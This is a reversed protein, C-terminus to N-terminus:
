SIGYSEDDPSQDLRSDIFVTATDATHPVRLEFNVIEDEWVGGCINERILGWQKKIEVVYQGDVQIYM